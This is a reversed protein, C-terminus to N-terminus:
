VILKEKMAAVADEFAVNFTAKTIRNETKTWSFYKVKDGDTEEKSKPSESNAHNKYVLILITPLVAKM